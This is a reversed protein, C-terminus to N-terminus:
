FHTWYRLRGAPKSGHGSICESIAAAILDGVFRMGSIGRRMIRMPLLRGHCDCCWHRLGLGWLRDSGLLQGVGERLLVLECLLLALLHNFFEDTQDGLVQLLALPHLDGPEADKLHALAGRAHAAVRPGALRDLDLRALFDGEAGGLVELHRDSRWLSM